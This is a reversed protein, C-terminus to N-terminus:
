IYSRYSTSFVSFYQTGDDLLNTMCCNVEPNVCERVGMNQNTVNLLPKGWLPQEEEPFMEYDYTYEYCKLGQGLFMLDPNRFNQTVFEFKSKM